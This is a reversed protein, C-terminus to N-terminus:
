IKSIIGIYYFIKRIKFMILKIIRGTYFEFIPRARKRGYTCANLIDINKRNMYRLLSYDIIQLGEKSLEGTFHNGFSDRLIIQFNFPKETAPFDIQKPFRDALFNYYVDDPMQQVILGEKSDKGKLVLPLGIETGAWNTSKNIKFFKANWAEWISETKRNNWIIFILKDIANKNPSTNKIVVHFFIEHTGVKKSARNGYAKVEVCVQPRKRSATQGAWFIGGSGVLAVIISIILESM